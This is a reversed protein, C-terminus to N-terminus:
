RAEDWVERTALVAGFRGFIQAFRVIQPGFYIIANSHTPQGAETEQNYFRIRSDPFCIPYQKLPAFWANGPVANVLLLAETVAGARYSEILRRSWRAQNSEGAEIGYPPNLWVRGEWRQSLGDDDETFFRAACVVRNAYEESAPDLDIGGMLQHAADLFPRPTFWRDNTSQNILQHSELGQEKLMAAVVSPGPTEGESIAHAVAFSPTWTAPNNIFMPTAAQEEIPLSTPQAFPDREQRAALRITATSWSGAEADRLLRAIAEPEQGAVYAHHTFSLKDKRLSLDIKGCVWKANRLTQYSYDSEELAQSYMEGWDEEFANLYDGWWWLAASHARRLDEGLELYEDPSLTGRPIVLGTTTFSVPLRSLGMAQVPAVATM